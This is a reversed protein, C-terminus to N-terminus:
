AHDIQRTVAVVDVAFSADMSPLGEFPLMTRGAAAGSRFLRLPGQAGPRGPEAFASLLQVM